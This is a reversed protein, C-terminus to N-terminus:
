NTPRVPDIRQVRSELWKTADTPTFYLRRGVKYATPVRGEKKLWRYTTKSIRARECLEDLSIATDLDFATSKPM